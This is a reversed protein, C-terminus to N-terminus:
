QWYCLDDVWDSIDACDEDLRDWSFGPPIIYRQGKVPPTPYVETIQEVPQQWSNYQRAEVLYNTM